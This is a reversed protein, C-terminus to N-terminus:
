FFKSNLNAPFIGTAEPRRLVENLRSTDKTRVALGGTPSAVFINALSNANALSDTGTSDTKTKLASALSSKSTDKAAIKKEASAIKSELDIKTLLASFAEFSPNIEQISYVECFELKAAGSLLKRVREPNDIGPM